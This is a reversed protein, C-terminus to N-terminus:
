GRVGDEDFEVVQIARNTTAPALRTSWAGQEFEWWRWDAVSASAIRADPVIAAIFGEVTLGFRGDTESMFAERGHSHVQARVVLAKRDAWDLLRAMAKGSVILQDPRRVIGRAGLLAVGDIHDPDRESATLWSGSEVGAAGFHRIDRVITEIGSVPLLLGTV